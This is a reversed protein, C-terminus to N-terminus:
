GHGLIRRASSEGAYGAQYLAIAMIRVAYGTTHTQRRGCQIPWININFPTEEVIEEFFSRQNAVISEKGQLQRRYLTPM